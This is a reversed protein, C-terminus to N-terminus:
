RWKHLWFDVSDIGFGCRLYFRLATTNQAQTAVSVRQIGHRGCWRFAEAVLARGVGAGRTESAVAILGIRARDDQQHLTVYGVPGAAGGADGDAVLVCDAWGESSRRIWTEYLRRCADRSFNQDAFFRTDPHASGAIRELADIDAQRVPRVNMEGAGRMKTEFPGEAVCVVRVGALHFHRSEAVPILPFADSPVLLYLCRIREREAWEDAARVDELTRAHSEGIPFGFFTSDWDLRRATM